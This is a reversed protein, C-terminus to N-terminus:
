ASRQVNVTPNGPKRGDSGEMGEDEAKETGKEEMSKFSTLGFEPTYAAKQSFGLLLRYCGAPSSM